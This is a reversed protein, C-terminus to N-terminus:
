VECEDNNDAVLVERNEYTWFGNLDILISVVTDGQGCQILDHAKMQQQIARFFYNLDFVSLYNKQEIDLLRFFYQLAQPERRNEMALVFDLYTKYDMEKDYTLCEQFVREIFASTLTGTGYRSLEAKSLMGNHDTDLNLYQGYVCLQHLQFGILKKLMRQYHKM